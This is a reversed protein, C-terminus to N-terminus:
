MHHVSHLLGFVIWAVIGFASIMMTFRRPNIIYTAPAIFIAAAVLVYVTNALLSHYQFKSINEAVIFPGALGHLWASTRSWPGLAVSLALFCIGQFLVFMVAVRTSAARRSIVMTEDAPSQKSRAM